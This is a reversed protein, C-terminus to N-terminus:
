KFHSSVTDKRPAQHPAAQIVRKGYETNQLGAESLIFSLKYRMDKMLNDATFGTQQFLVAKDALDHNTKKADKSKTSQKVRESDITVKPIHQYNSVANEIRAKNEAIKLLSLEQEELKEYIKQKEVNHRFGVKEKNRKIEEKERKIREAEERDKRMRELENKRSKQEKFGDAIKKLDKARTEKEREKKLEFESKKEEELKKAKAKAELRILFEQKKEQYESSLRNQLKEQKVFELEKTFRDIAQDMQKELLEEAAKQLATLHSEWDKKLNKRHKTNWRFAEVIKDHKELEQRSLSPFELILREM